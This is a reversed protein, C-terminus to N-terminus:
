KCPYAKFLIRTVISSASSQSDRTNPKIGNAVTQRVENRQMDKGACIRQKESLYDFVGGVYGHYGAVKKIDTGEPSAQHNVWEQAAEVLSEGNYFVTIAASASGMISLLLILALIKKM